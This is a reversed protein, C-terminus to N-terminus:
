FFLFHGCCEGAAFRQEGHAGVRKNFIRDIEGAQPKRHDVLLVAEAHALTQRQAFFADARM